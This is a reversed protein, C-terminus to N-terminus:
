RMLILSSCFRARRINSEWQNSKKAISKPQPATSEKGSGTCGFCVTPRPLHRSDTAPNTMRSRKQVPTSSAWLSIAARTSMMPKGEDDGSHLKGQMEGAFHHMM